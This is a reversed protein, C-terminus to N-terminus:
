KKSSNKSPKFFLVFVLWAGLSVIGGALIPIELSISGLLGGILPPLANGASAMSQNIGMVVGQQSADAQQSVLANLNPQGVGQFIAIIALVILIGLVNSPLLLLPISLALGMMTIKVLKNASFYKGVISVLGGQVFAICIGIYGFINGLDAETFAFRKVMYVSFFQTFFAFGFTALFGVTFLSSLNPMTFGIRLNSFGTLLGIKKETKQQITESFLLTVLGINVGCLLAASLFPTSPSFWSVLEPNALLGGLFPGLIFGLGVMMGVFGFNKTRSKGDSIDAIASFVISINGGTFGDLLRAALILWLNGIIIGYAFIAYGIMSGLLSLILIPKRGYRDSLAGLLPAGFFQALPYCATLLGYVLDRHDNLYDPLINGTNNIILPSFVPIILGIGVMDIFATLLIPLLALKKSPNEKTM